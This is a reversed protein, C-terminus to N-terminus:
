AGASGAAPGRDWTRSPTRSAMGLGGRGSARPAFDTRRDRAAWRGRSTAEARAGLAAPRLPTGTLDRRGTAAVASRVTPPLQRQRAIFPTVDALQRGRGGRQLVNWAERPRNWVAPTIGRTSTTIIGRPLAALRARDRLGLGPVAFRDLRRHGFRGAAVFNWRSFLGWDGGAWGYVGFRFRDFLRRAGFFGAYFNTYYGTPCWGVYSPGWYWYVWAPSYVTGPEWVWGYDGVFDWTGYHYPVWGCPEDSGWAVGSPTSEWSGHWYPRWDAGVGTPQWVERGDAEIWRGYRSLPAAEYRLDPDVHSDAAVQSELSEGWRELSDLLGARRVRAMGPEGQVIAEDGAGVTQSGRESVVEARGERVVVGSWGREEATLR